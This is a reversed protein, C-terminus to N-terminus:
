APGATTLLANQESVQENLTWLDYLYGLGFLGFTFLYLLGTVWKGIYFRHGGFFGLFPLWAVSYDLPGPRFRRDAQEDM